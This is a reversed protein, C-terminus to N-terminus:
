NNKQLAAQMDLPLDALDVISCQAVLRKMGFLKNQIEQCQLEEAESIQSETAEIEQEIKYETQELEQQKEDSLLSFMAIGTAEDKSVKYKQISRLVENLVNLVQKPPSLVYPTFTLNDLDLSLNIMRLLNKNQECKLVEDVYYNWIMNAGNNVMSTVYSWLNDDPIYERYNTLRDETLEILDFTIHIYKDSYDDVNQLVIPIETLESLQPLNFLESYEAPKGYTSEQLIYEMYKLIPVQMMEFMKSIRYKDEDTLQENPHNNAVFTDIDLM